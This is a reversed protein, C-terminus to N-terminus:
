KIISAEWMKPTDVNIIKTVTAAVNALGFPGEGIERKETKDAIIFPVPNLTHATKPKPDSGEKAKELMEDANGHDATVLLVYEDKGELANM